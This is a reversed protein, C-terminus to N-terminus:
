RCRPSPTSFLMPVHGAIVDTLAPASGKYPVHDDRHRDHEQAARRLSSPALRARGVRLCSARSRRPWSSWSRWRACRCPRIAGGARVPDAASCRWRRSTRSRITPCSRTSPSASPSRRQRGDGPHLRRARGERGAGGIVSGAGPRNEVVVTKGLRETLRDSFARCLADVAGGPPWPAILTIQRTPYDQAVAASNRAHVVARSVSMREGKALPWAGSM